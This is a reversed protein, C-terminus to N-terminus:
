ETLALQDTRLAVGLRRRRQEVVLDVAAILEASATGKQRLDNALSQAVQLDHTRSLHSMCTLRPVAAAPFGTFTRTNRRSEDGASARLFASLPPM